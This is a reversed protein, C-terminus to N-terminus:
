ESSATRADLSFINEYIESEGVSRFVEPAIEAAKNLAKRLSQEDLAEIILLGDFFGQQQRMGKEVTPVSTRARDTAGIQVAAIGDIAVVAEALSKPQEPLHEV